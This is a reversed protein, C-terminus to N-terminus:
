EDARAHTEDKDITEMVKMMKMVEIMEMLHIVVVETHCHSRAKVATWEGAAAHM